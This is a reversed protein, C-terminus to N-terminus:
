RIPFPQFKFLPLSWFFFLSIAICTSVCCVLQSYHNKERVICSVTRNRIIFMSYPLPAPALQRRQSGIKDGAMEAGAALSSKISDCRIIAEEESSCSIKRISVCAIFVQYERTIISVDLRTTWCIEPYFIFYGVTNYTALQCTIKNESLLFSIRPNVDIIISLRCHPSAWTDLAANSVGNICHRSILYPSM